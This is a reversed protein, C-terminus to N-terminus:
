YWGFRCQECLMDGFRTRKLRQSSNECKPCYALVCDDGDCMHMCKECLSIKCGPAACPCMSCRDSILKKCGKCFPIAKGDDGGWPGDREWSRRNSDNHAEIDAGVVEEHERFIKEVMRKNASILARYKSDLIRKERYWRKNLIRMENWKSKIVASWDSQNMTSPASLQKNETHLTNFKTSVFRISNQYPLYSLVSQIADNSLIHDMPCAAIYMLAADSQNLTDLEDIIVDKIKQLPILRLLELLDNVCETEDVFRRVKCLISAM